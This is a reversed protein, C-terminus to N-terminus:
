NAVTKKTYNLKFCVLLLMAWMKIFIPPTNLVRNQSTYYLIHLTLNILSTNYSSSSQNCKFLAYADETSQFKMARKTPNHYAQKTPKYRHNSLM